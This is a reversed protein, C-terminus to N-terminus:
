KSSINYSLGLVWYTQFPNDGKYDKVETILPDDNLINFAEQKNGRLGLDFGIGIGKYATTFTNVWTWNSFNEPDEYSLFTSFNSKWTVGKTIQKTYDAVIKTGLSSTFNFGEDAFVFNYNLPHIVVVLDTIPMWTAGAGIDFYGPNNFKEDLISTRYEGLVSVAWKDNIKYGFLSTLNFADSAVQFEENEMDEPIDKNDFKM